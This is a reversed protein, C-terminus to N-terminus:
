SVYDTKFLTLLLVKPGKNKFSLSLNLFKSVTKDAMGIAEQWKASFCM